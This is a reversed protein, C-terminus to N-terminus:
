LLPRREKKFLGKKESVEILFDKIKEDKLRLNLAKYFSIVSKIIFPYLIKEYYRKYNTSIKFKEEDIIKDLKEKVDDYSINFNNKMIESKRAFAIENLVSHIINGLLNPDIRYVIKNQSTGLKAISKLYYRYTCKNLDNYDYFGISFENNENILDSKDLPLGDMADNNDEIRCSKKDKFILGAISSYDSSNLSSKEVPMKFKVRVEEIISSMESATNADKKFYIFCKKASFIARIYRYKNELYITEKSKLNLRKKQENTLFFNIKSQPSLSKEDCNLLFLNKWPNVKKISEKTYRYQSTDLQVRKRKLSNLLFKFLSNCLKRKSFINKWRNKLLNKNIAEMEILSEYFTEFLNSYESNNFISFDKKSFYRFFEEFSDIKFLKYIDEYLKECIAFGKPIYKYGSRALFIISRKDKPTIEYYKFFYISGQIKMLDSIKLSLQNDIIETNEVLNYLDSLFSFFMTNSFFDKKNSVTGSLYSNQDNRSDIITAKDLGKMDKLLSLSQVCNDSCERIKVDIKTNPITVKKMRLNKLDFDEPDMQLFLEIDTDISSFSDIIHKELRSFYLTNVFIVKKVQKFKTLDVRAPNYVFIRDELNNQIVYEKYDNKVNELQKFIEKQWEYLNDEKIKREEILEEYLNFFLKGFEICDFINKIGFRSKNENTLSKFFSVLRFDGEIIPKEKFFIESKLQDKTTVIARNIGFTEFLKNRCSTVDELSDLVFICENPNQVHGFIQDFIPQGYGVFRCLM